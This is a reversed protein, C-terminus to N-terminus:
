NLSEIRQMREILKLKAKELRLKPGWIEIVHKDNDIWIYQVRTWRTIANFARGKQGILKGVNEPQVSCEIQMFHTNKPPNYAGPTYFNDDDDDDDNVIPHSKLEFLDFFTQANVM